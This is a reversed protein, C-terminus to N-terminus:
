WEPDNLEYPDDSSDPETVKEKSLVIAYVDASSDYYYKSSYNYYYNRYQVYSEEYCDIIIDLSFESENEIEDEYEYENYNFYYYFEPNSKNFMVTNHNVIKNNVPDYRYVNIQRLTLQYRKYYPYNEPDIYEVDSYDIVYEVIFMRSEDGYSVFIHNCGEEAFNYTTNENVIYTSDGDDGTKSKAFEFLTNAFGDPPVFNRMYNDNSYVCIKSM